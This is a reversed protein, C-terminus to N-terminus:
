ISDMALSLNELEDRKGGFFKVCDADHTIDVM